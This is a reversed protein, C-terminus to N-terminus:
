RYLLSVLLFVHLVKSNLLSECPKKQPKKLWDHRKGLAGKLIPVSHYIQALEIYDLPIQVLIKNSGISHVQGSM